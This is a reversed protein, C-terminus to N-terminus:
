YPVIKNCKVIYKLRKNATILKEITLSPVARNEKEMRDWCATQNIPFLNLAIELQDEDSLTSAKTLQGHHNPIGKGM